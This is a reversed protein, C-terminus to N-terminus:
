GLPDKRSRKQKSKVAIINQRPQILDQKSEAYPPAWCIKYMDDIYVEVIQAGYIKKNRWKVLIKDGPKPRAVTHRTKAVM